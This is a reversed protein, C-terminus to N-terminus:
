PLSFADKPKTPVKYKDILQQMGETTGNHRFKYNTELYGMEQQRINALQPNGESLAVFHADADIVRDLLAIANKLQEAKAPSDPMAQYKKAAEQYDDNVSSSLLLYNFPDGPDLQSAKALREQTKARDGRVMALIGLSQYFRPLLETYQKWTADDLGTTKKNAEILEIAHAAYQESQAVFKGNKQKAQETGINMLETLVPVSDPHQALYAAGTTFAEDPKKADSYGVLIIPMILEEEAPENFITKFQQAMAIKQEADTMKRIQDAAKQALMPRLSSKPYKKMFETLAKAKGALDPAADIAQAMKQEDSLGQPQAILRMSGGAMAVIILVALRLFISQCKM